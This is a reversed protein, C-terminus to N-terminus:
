ATSSDDTDEPRERTAEELLQALQRPDQPFGAEIWRQQLDKLAIGIARGNPVGRALLDAGSFPLRPEEAARLYLIAERWHAAFEPGAEAQALCLADCAAQRGHRFLLRLLAQPPPPRSARHLPVFAEAMRELRQHEQNSLRLYDRLRQADEALNVCLAALRLIPDPPDDATARLLNELRAPQPASALLPGLLGTECFVRTVEGARRAALLKMIENRIRERSLRRLGDREAMAAQLAAKDLPGEAYDAAFRFFRLIRLYDERIRAVPAGIFRLRRAELDALGGVYDYLEGRRTMSLANMTFDRRQADGAFDRSFRVKAHRGDTEIDERLSTVEFPTGNVLLTVTGHALGTGIARVGAAQARAMVTEPTATTAIDCEHVPRDLLANRLAGGVLRAEEGDGDLLTLVRILSPDRLLAKAAEPAAIARM